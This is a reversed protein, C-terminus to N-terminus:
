KRLEKVQDETAMKVLMNMAARKFHSVGKFSKLRELVEDSM